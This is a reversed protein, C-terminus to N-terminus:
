KEGKLPAVSLRVYFGERGVITATIMRRVSHAAGISTNKLAMM